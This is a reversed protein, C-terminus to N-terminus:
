ASNDGVDSEARTGLPEMILKVKYKSGRNSFDYSAQDRWTEILGIAGLERIGRQRRDPSLGQRTTASQPLWVWQEHANKDFHRIFTWMAFAKASARAIWGNMWWDSPVNIYSYEGAKASKSPKSYPEGSGDERLLTVRVPRSGNRDVHVFGLDALESIARHIRRKGTRAFDSLGLLMAWNGASFATDHDGGPSAWLLSVYLPFRVDSNGLVRVFPAPGGDGEFFERRIPCNRLNGFKSLRRSLNDAADITLDVSTTMGSFM